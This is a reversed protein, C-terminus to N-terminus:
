ILQNNKYMLYILLYLKCTIQIKTHHDVHTWKDLLCFKKREWATKNQFFALLVNTNMSLQRDNCSSKMCWRDYAQKGELSSWTQGVMFKVFEAEIQLKGSSFNPWEIQQLKSYLQNITWRVKTYIKCLTSQDSLCFQIKLDIIKQGVEKQQRYCDAFSQISSDSQKKISPEICYLIFQYM